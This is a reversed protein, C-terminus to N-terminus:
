GIFQLTNNLIILSFLKYESFLKIIKSYNQNANVLSLPFPQLQPFLLDRLHASEVLELIGVNTGFHYQLLRNQLLNPYIHKM